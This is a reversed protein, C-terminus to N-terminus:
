IHFIYLKKIPRCKRYFKLYNTQLTAVGRETLRPCRFVNFEKVSLLLVVSEECFSSLNDLNALTLVQLRQLVIEQRRHGSTAKRMNFVKQLEFCNIIEVSELCPLGQVLTFPFAYKLNRCDTIRLTRFKPWYILPNNNSSEAAEQIILHELSDCGNIKLEELHVLSQALPTPFLYALKQCGDIRMMKLSRLSVNNISGKWICRLKPLSEVM